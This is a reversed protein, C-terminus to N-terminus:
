SARIELREALKTLLDAVDAQSKVKNEAAVKESADETNEFGAMDTTNEIEEVINEAASEAFNKEEASFNM